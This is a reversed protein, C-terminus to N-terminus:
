RQPLCERLVSDSDPWSGGRCGGWVSIIITAVTSPVIAAISLAEPSISQFCTPLPESACKFNGRSDSWCGSSLNSWGRMDVVVVAVDALCAAADSIVAAMGEMSPLTKIVEAADDLSARALPSLVVFEMVLVSM